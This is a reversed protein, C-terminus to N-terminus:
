MSFELYLGEIAKLSIHGLFTSSTLVRISLLDRRTMDKFDQLNVESSTYLHKFLLVGSVFWINM